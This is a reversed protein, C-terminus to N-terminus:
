IVSGRIPIVVEPQESVNTKVKIRGTFNGTKASDSLTVKLKGQGEDVVEAKVFDPDSAVELIKMEGANTAKLIVQAERNQGQPTSFFYVSAPSVQVPKVMRLFISTRMQKFDESNANTKYTIQGQFVHRDTPLDAGKISVRIKMKKDDIREPTLKLFPFPSQIDTIELKDMIETSVVIEREIDAGRKVSPLAISVPEVSVETRIRGALRIQQRPEDPDNSTVIITKTVEGSFRTSNFTVPIIGSEGPKYTTKTPKTTTCGCTPKVDLIELDAKGPNTFKYEIDVSAGRDIVAFNHIPQEFSLNPQADQAFAALCVVALCLSSFIRSM